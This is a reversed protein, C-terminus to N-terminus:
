QPQNGFNVLEASGGAILSFTYGFGSACPAQDIPKVETWGTQVVECVTYTGAVLANFLYNGSADTTTSTTTPGFVQVTWGAQGTGTSADVVKGSIAVSGPPPPPPPPPPPTNPTVPSCGTRSRGLPDTPRVHSFSTPSRHEDAVACQAQDKVAAGGQALAGLVPASLLGLALLPVRM